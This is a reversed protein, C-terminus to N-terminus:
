KRATLEMSALESYHHEPSFYDPCNIANETLASDPHVPCKLYSSNTFFLCNSCPIQHLQRTQQASDRVIAWISWFATLVFGWAAVAFFWHM